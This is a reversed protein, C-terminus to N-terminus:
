FRIMEIQNVVVFVVIRRRRRWICECKCLLLCLGVLLSLFLTGNVNAIHWNRQEISISDRNQQDEASIKILLEIWQSKRDMKM